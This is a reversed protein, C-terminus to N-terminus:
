PNRVYHYGAEAGFQYRQFYGYYQWDILLRPGQIEDRREGLTRNRAVHKDIKWAVFKAPLDCDGNPWIPVINAM